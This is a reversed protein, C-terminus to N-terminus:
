VNTRSTGEASDDVPPLTAIKRLNDLRRKVGVKPNKQIAFEYYEIAQVTDGWAELIEGTARFIEAHREPYKQPIRGAAKTLNDLIRAGVEKKIQGGCVKLEALTDILLTFGDRNEMQLQRYSSAQEPQNLKECIAAALGYAKSLQNFDIPIGKAIWAEISKLHQQRYFIAKDSEKISDFVDVLLGCATAEQQFDVGFGRELARELIMIIEPASESIVGDITYLRDQALSLLASASAQELAIELKQKQGEPSFYEALRKRVVPGFELCIITEGVEEDTEIVGLEESEQRSIVRTWMGSEFDFPPWPVGFRSIATWIPDNVPAIMRNKADGYFEGSAKEWREHWDRPADRSELRFLEQCPWMDLVAQNEKWHRYGQALGIATEICLNLREDDAPENIEVLANRVECRTTAQDARGEVYKLLIGLIKEASSLNEAMPLFENIVTRVIQIQESLM